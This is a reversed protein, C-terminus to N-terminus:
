EESIGKVVGIVEEPTLVRDFLKLDAMAGNYHYTTGRSFSGIYLINQDPIPPMKENRAVEVGNFYVIVKGNDFTLALNHWVERPVKVKNPNSLCTVRKNNEQGVFVGLHNWHLLVRFGPGKERSTNSILECTAKRPVSKDVKFDFMLTFPKSYDFQKFTEILATGGGRRQKLPTTFYLAKTGETKGEGWKTNNPFLIRGAIKKGSAEKLGTGTGEDMKVEIVPDVAFLSFVSCCIIASLMLKKMFEDGQAILYCVPNVFM